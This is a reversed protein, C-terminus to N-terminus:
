GAHRPGWHDAVYALDASTRAPILKSINGGIALCSPRACEPCDVVVGQQPPWAFGDGATVFSPLPWADLLAGLTITAHDMPAACHPCRPAHGDVLGGRTIRPRTM